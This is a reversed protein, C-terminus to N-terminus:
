VPVAPGRHPATDAALEREVIRRATRTQAENIIDANRELADRMADDHKVARALGAAISRASRKLQAARALGVALGLAVLAPTRVPDPLWSVSERAAHAWDPTAPHHGTPPAAALLRDAEALARQAGQRSHTVAALLAEIEAQARAARPDGEAALQALSDRTHTLAQQRATLDSALASARDRVAVLEARGTCGGITALAALLSLMLCAPVLWAALRRVRTRAYTHAPTRAVASTRTETQHTPM